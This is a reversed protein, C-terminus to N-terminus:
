ALLNKKLLENEQILKLFTKSHQYIVKPFLSIRNQSRVQIVSKNPYDQMEILNPQTRITKVQSCILM